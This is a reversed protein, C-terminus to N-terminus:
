SKLTLKKKFFRISACFTELLADSDISNAASFCRGHVTDVAALLQAFSAAPHAAEFSLADKRTKQQVKFCNVLIAM